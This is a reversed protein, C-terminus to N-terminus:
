KDTHMCECLRLLTIHRQTANDHRHHSALLPHKYGQRVPKERNKNRKGTGNVCSSNEGSEECVLCVVSCERSNFIAGVRHATTTSPYPLPACMRRLGHIRWFTVMNYILSAVSVFGIFFSVGTRFSKYVSLRIRDLRIADFHFRSLTIEDCTVVCVVM